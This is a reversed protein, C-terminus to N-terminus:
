AGPGIVSQSGINGIFFSTRILLAPIRQRVGSSFAVRVVIRFVYLSIRLTFRVDTATMLM